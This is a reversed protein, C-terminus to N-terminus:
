PSQPVRLNTLFQDLNVQIPQGNSPLLSVTSAANSATAATNELTGDYLLLSVSIGFVSGAPSHQVLIGYVTPTVTPPTVTLTVSGASTAANSITIANDSTIGSVTTSTPIGTGSIADGIAVNAFGNGTTTVTTSGSTTTCGSVTFSPPTIAAQNVQQLNFPIFISENTSNDAESGIAIQPNLANTTTSKPRTMGTLSLSM